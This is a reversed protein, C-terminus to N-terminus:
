ALRCKLFTRFSQPLCAQNKLQSPIGCKGIVGDFLYEHLFSIYTTTINRVTEKSVCFRVALVLHTLSCKLKMLTILLQDEVSLCEVQWGLYYKKPQSNLVSVLVDFVDANLGTYHRVLDPNHSIDLYHFLNNYSAMERAHQLEDTVANLQVSLLANDTQLRRIVSSSDAPQLTPIDHVQEAPPM